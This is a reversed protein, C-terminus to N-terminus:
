ATARRAHGAGRRGGAGSLLVALADMSITGVVPARAGDVIVETGTLDRRFGDAYGM